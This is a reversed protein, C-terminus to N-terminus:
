FRNLISRIIINWFIDARLKMTSQKCVMNNGDQLLTEEGVGDEELGSDGTWDGQVVTVTEFRLHPDEGPDAGAGYEHVVITGIRPSKAQVSLGVMSFISFALILIIVTRGVKRFYGDMTGEKKRQGGLFSFTRNRHSGGESGFM